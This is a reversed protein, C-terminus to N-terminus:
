FIGDIARCAMTSAHLRQSRALLQRRRGHGRDRMGGKLVPGQLVRGLM